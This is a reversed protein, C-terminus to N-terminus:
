QSFDTLIRELCREDYAAMVSKGRLSDKLSTDQKLIMLALRRLTGFNEPGHDKHIRSKDEAFTVDLVWHLSNEIGWHGRVANAFAKVKPPLSSIYYRIAVTEQTGITRISLVMGISQLDQWAGSRILERPAPLVTYERREHRGHGTEVTTMRRVDEAAFDNEVLTLFAESVAQHLTPQNEKVALVYDADAARIDAAIAKQCGMADITVIAGALELVELLKPIATIENSKGDVAQQGLLLHNDVAWASVMHLAEKGKSSSGCHRKGDFAVVKGALLGTVSEMWNRVGDMLVDPRLAQFVRMFTWQSPIGEPLELWRELWTKKGRGFRAIDEWSKAGSIVACIAVAVIDILKHRRTREVRPDTLNAFHTIIAIHKPFAM